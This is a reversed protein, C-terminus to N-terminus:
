TRIPSPMVIIEYPANLTMGDWNGWGDSSRRKCDNPSEEGIPIRHVKMPAEAGYVM